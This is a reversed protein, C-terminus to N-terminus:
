SVSNKFSSEGYMGSAYFYKYPKGAFRANIVPLELGPEAIQQPKLVIADGSKIATATVDPITM